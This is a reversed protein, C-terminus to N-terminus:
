KKILEKLTAMNVKSDFISKIPIEFGNLVKSAIIGSKSKLNLKYKRKELIYQEVEKKLPDIIWYEAVEHLEYDQKKVVRDLNTTSPSLVEVIFDPAPYFLTNANIKKSKIKGFFCIDPEFDNRTLQVLAKEVRVIGNNRMNVFVGMLLSLYHVAQNHRDLAPSHIIVEGEVFEAKADEDLDAYFKQRQKKEHQWYKNLEDLVEPLEPSHKLTEIIQASSTM